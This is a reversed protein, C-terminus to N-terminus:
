QQNSIIKDGANLGSLIEAGNKYERGTTIYVKKARSQVLTLVYDGRDDSHICEYPVVLINKDRSTVISCDASYGIRLKDDRKEDLTVTVCVTTEKGSLGTTQVAEDSIKTVKGTYTRDPVANFKIEATQGKEVREIYNESINVPIELVGTDSLKIVDSNKQIIDDTDYQISTIKGETDSIVEKVTCYKKVEGLVQEKMSFTLINGMDAYHSMMDAQYYSFLRDGKKIEDGSKVYVEKMIGLEDAKVSKGSKYQLKGSSTITNEMDQAKLLLTEVSAPSGKLAYGTMVVSSIILLTVLILYIYKKM